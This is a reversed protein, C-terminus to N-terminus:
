RVYSGILVRKVPDSVRVKFTAQEQVGLRRWCVKTSYKGVAGISESGCDIWTKGSDKSLHLSAVPNQGQGEQTGVGVEFDIELNSINFPQKEDAIHTYIREAVLERGADDYYDQSMEYVTGDLRSGVLHKGFAFICCTGLHQEFNGNDNLYAREHWLGTTLDYVLSTELGGGTLVYFVHGDQQYAWSRILEPQSAAQIIQEIPGTSIRQPTLGRARYVIGTGFKDAGIWFISNDLSMVSHPAICGVDIKAGSIPSFPFVSDGTNQNVEISTSGLLWLQGVASMVRVLKDPSSEATAFDLASWILGDYLGSIYFRGSGVENIVFYGDIYTLTAAPPLDLDTVKEFLNTSFTLIYVKSGDCIALQFGNEDISVIGSSTELSGRETSVGSADMEYLKSGTVFFARGNEARFGGRVEGFGTMGFVALGPTGYLATPEKGQQDAVVYFNVSRQSDLNLSRERYSGGVLGIKM